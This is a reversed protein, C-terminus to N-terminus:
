TAQGWFRWWPRAPAASLATQALLRHLEGIQTDKSQLQDDKTTLQAELSTIRAELAALALEKGDVVPTPVSDTPNTSDTGVTDPMHVFWRGGDKYGMLTGRIVRKRVGDLYITLGVPTILLNSSVGM